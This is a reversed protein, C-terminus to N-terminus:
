LDGGETAFESYIEVMQISCFLVGLNKDVVLLREYECCDIKM